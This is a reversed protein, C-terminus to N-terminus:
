WYVELKTLENSAVSPFCTHINYIYIKSKVISKLGWTYFAPCSIKTDMIIFAWDDDHM